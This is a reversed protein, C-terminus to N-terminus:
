FPNCGQERTVNTDNYLQWLTSVSTQQSRIRLIKDVVRRGVETVTTSINVAPLDKIMMSVIDDSKQENSDTHGIFTEGGQKSPSLHHEMDERSVSSQRDSALASYM